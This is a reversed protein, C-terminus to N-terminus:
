SITIVTAGATIVQTVTATAAYSYYTITLGGNHTIKITNKNFDYEIAVVNTFSLSTAAIGPGTTSTIVVTAPTINPM